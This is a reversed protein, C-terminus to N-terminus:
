LDRMSCSLGPVMLYIHTNLFTETESKYFYFGLYLSFAICIGTMHSRFFKSLKQLKKM